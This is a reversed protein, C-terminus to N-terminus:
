LVPCSNVTILLEDKGKESISNGPMIEMNNSIKIPTRNLKLHSKVLHNSALASLLSLEGALVTACVIRALKQSNEGPM